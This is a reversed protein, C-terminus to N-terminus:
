DCPQCPNLGYKDQKLKDPYANYSNVNPLSPKARKLKGIFIDGLERKTFLPAFGCCPLSNIYSLCKM